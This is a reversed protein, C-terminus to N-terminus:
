YRALLRELLRAIPSKSMRPHLGDRLLKSTIRDTPAHEKISGRASDRPKLSYDITRDHGDSPEHPADYLM